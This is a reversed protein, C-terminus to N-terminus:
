QQGGTTAGNISTAWHHEQREDASSTARFIRHVLRIAIRQAVGTRPTFRVDYTPEDEAQIGHAHADPFPYPPSEGVVTGIKGRVYAPLRIHGPVFDLKV